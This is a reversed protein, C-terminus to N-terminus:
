RSGGKGCFCWNRDLRLYVFNVDMPVRGRGEPDTQERIADAGSPRLRRRRERYYLQQKPM